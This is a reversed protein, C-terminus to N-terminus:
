RGPPNIQAYACECRGMVEGSNFFGHGMADMVAGAAAASDIGKVGDVFGRVQRAGQGAGAVRVGGDGRQYFRGQVGAAPYVEGDGAFGADDREAQVFCARRFDHVHLFADQEEGINQAQQRFESNQEAAQLSQAGGAGDDDVPEVVARINQEAHVGFEGARVAGFDDGERAGMFDQADADGRAGVEGLGGDDECGGM